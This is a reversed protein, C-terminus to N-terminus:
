RAPNIRPTLAQGFLSLVEAQLERRRSENVPAGDFEVVRIRHVVRDATRLERRSVAQFRSLFLARAFRELVNWSAPVDLEVAFLNGDRGDSFRVRAADERYPLSPTAHLLDVSRDM